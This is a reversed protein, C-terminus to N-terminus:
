DLWNEVHLGPVRSFERMNATILTLGLALAHAAIFLDVPRILQGSRTLADRIEAYIADGPVEFPAVPIRLLSQEVDRSLRPSGKKLAGYRLESATFISVCCNEVREIEVRSAAAGYPDRILDSVISTDLMVQVTL